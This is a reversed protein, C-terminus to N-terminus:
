PGVTESTGDAKQDGSSLSGIVAMELRQHSQRRGDASWVEQEAVFSVVAVIVAATEQDLADSGDDGGHSRALDLYGM